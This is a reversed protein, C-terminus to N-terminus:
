SIYWYYELFSQPTDAVYILYLVDIMNIYIIITYTINIYEFDIIIILLVVYNNYNASSNTTNTPATINPIIYSM